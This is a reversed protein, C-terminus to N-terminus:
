KDRTVQETAEEDSDEDMEVAETTKRKQTKTSCNHTNKHCARSISLIISVCCTNTRTGLEQLALLCARYAIQAGHEMTSTQHNRSEPPTHRTNTNRHFGFVVNPFRFAIRFAPQRPQPSRAVLGRSIGPGGIEPASGPKGPPGTTGASGRNPGTKSVTELIRARGSEVPNAPCGTKEAPARNRGPKGRNGTEGRNKGRNKVMLM